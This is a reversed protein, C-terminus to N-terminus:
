VSHGFDLLDVSKSNQKTTMMKRSQDFNENLNVLDDVENENDNEDVRIFSHSEFQKPIPSSCLSSVKSFNRSICSLKQSLVTKLSQDNQIKRSNYRVILKLIPYFDTMMDKFQKDDRFHRPILEVDIFDYTRRTINELIM